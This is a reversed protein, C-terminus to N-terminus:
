LPMTSGLDLDWSRQKAHASFWSGWPQRSTKWRKKRRRRKGRTSPNQSQRPQPRNLWVSILVMARAQGQKATPWGYHNRLYVSVPPTLLPYSQHPTPQCFTMVLLVCSSPLPARAMVKLRLENSDWRTQVSDKLMHQCQRQSPALPGLPTSM